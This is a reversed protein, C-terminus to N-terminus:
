AACSGNPRDRNTAFMTTIRLFTDQTLFLFSFNLHVLKRLATYNFILVDSSFYVHLQCSICVKYIIYNTTHEETTRVLIITSLKHGPCKYVLAKTQLMGSNMNVLPKFTQPLQEFAPTGSQRVNTLLRTLKVRTSRFM